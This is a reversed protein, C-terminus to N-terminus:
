IVVVHHLVTTLEKFVADLTSTIEAKELTDSFEKAVVALKKLDAMKVDKHWHADPISPHGRSLRGLELTKLDLDSELEKMAMRGLDDQILAGANADINNTFELVHDLGPM